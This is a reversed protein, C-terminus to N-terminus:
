SESPHCGQGTEFEFVLIDSSLGTLSCQAHLTLMFEPKRAAFNLSPLAECTASEPIIVLSTSIM